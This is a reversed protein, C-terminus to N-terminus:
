SSIFSCLKVASYIYLDDIFFVCLVASSIEDIVALILVPSRIDYSIFSESCNKNLFKLKLFIM